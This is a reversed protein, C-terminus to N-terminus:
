HWGWDGQFKNPRQVPNSQTTVPGLPNPSLPNPVLAQCYEGSVCITPSFTMVEKHFAKKSSICLLLRILSAPLESSDLKGSPIKVDTWFEGRLPWQPSVPLLGPDRVWSDSVLSHHWSDLLLSHSYQFRQPWWNCQMNLLINTKSTTKPIFIRWNLKLEGGWNEGLLYTANNHSIISSQGVM